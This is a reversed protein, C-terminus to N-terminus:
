SLFYSKRFFARNKWKRFHFGFKPDNVGSTLMPQVEGCLNLERIFHVKNFMNLNSLHFTEPFLAATLHTQKKLTKFHM